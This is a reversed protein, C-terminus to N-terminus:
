YHFCWFLKHFRNLILKSCVECMTETWANDFAPQSINVFFLKFNKQDANEMFHLPTNLVRGFM